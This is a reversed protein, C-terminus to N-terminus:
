SLRSCPLRAAKTTPAGRPDTFFRIQDARGAAGSLIRERVEPLAYAHFSKLATSFMSVLKSCHCARECIISTTLINGEAGAITAFYRRPIALYSATDEIRVKRRMLHAPVVFTSFLFLRLTGAEQKGVNGLM